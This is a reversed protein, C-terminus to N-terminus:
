EAAGPHPLGLQHAPEPCYRLTAMWPKSSYGFPPCKFHVAVIYRKGCPIIVGKGISM